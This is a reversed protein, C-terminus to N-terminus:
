VDVNRNSRTVLPNVTARLHRSPSSEGRQVIAGAELLGLSVRDANPLPTLLRHDTERNGPPIIKIHFYQGIRRLQPRERQDPGLRPPACDQVQHAVEVGRPAKGCTILWQSCEGPLDLLRFLMCTLTSRSSFGCTSRTNCLSFRYLFPLKQVAEQVLAREGGCEKSKFM